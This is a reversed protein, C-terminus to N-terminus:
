PGFADSLRRPTAANRRSAHTTDRYNDPPRKRKNSQAGGKTPTQMELCTMTFFDKWSQGEPKTAWSGGLCRCAYEFVAEDNAILAMGHSVRQFNHVVKLLDYCKERDTKDPSMLFVLVVARIEPPIDEM